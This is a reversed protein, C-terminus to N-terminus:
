SVLSTDTEVIAMSSVNEVGLSNELELIRRKPSDLETNMVGGEDVLLGEEVFGGLVSTSGCVGLQRKDGTIEGRFSSSSFTWLCLCLTAQDGGEGGSIFSMSLSRKKLPNGM